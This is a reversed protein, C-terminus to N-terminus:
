FPPNDPDPEVYNPGPLVVKGTMGDIVNGGEIWVRPFDKIGVGMFVGLGWHRQLLTPPTTNVNFVDCSNMHTGNSMTFSWHRMGRLFPKGGGIWKAKGEYRHVVQKGDNMEMWFAKVKAWKNASM